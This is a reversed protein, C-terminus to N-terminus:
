YVSKVEIVPIFEVTKILDKQYYDYLNPYKRYFLEKIFFIDANLDKGVSILNEAQETLHNKLSFLTSAPVKKTEMMVNYDQPYPPNSVTKDIVYVSITACLKVIPKGNDIYLLIKNDNDKVAFLCDKDSGDEKKFELYSQKVPSMLVNYILTEASTFSGILLGENFIGTTTADFVVNKTKSSTGEGSSGKPMSDVTASQDSSTTNDGTQVNKIIPMFGIKSRSTTGISFERLDGAIITNTKDIRKVLIKQLAFSSISDLPTTAMIVDKAKDEAVALIASDLLKQSRFSYDILSPTFNQAVSKSLVILNCFSLKPFWGTQSGVETLAKAVTSGKASIVAENNKSAQDTAQPIAIQATIEYEGDEELYDIGMAVILATKEIDLLNFDNSFFQVSMFLIIFLIIKTKIFKM